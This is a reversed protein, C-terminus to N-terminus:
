RTSESGAIGRAGFCSKREITMLQRSGKVHIWELGSESGVDLKMLREESASGLTHVVVDMSFARENAEADLCTQAANLVAGCYEVASSCDNAM